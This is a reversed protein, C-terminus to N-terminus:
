LDQSYSSIYACDSIKKGTNYFCLKEEISMNSYKEYFGELAILSEEFTAFCFNNHPAYGFENSMNKQRCYTHLGKLAQGRGSEKNWIYDIFTNYKSYYVLFAKQELTYDVYRYNAPTPTPSLTATPLVTAVEKIDAPANNITLYYYVFIGLILGIIYKKKNRM